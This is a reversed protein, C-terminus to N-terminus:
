FNGLTTKMLQAGVYAGHENLHIDDESYLTKDTYDTLVSGLDVLSDFDTTYNNRAYENFALFEARKAPSSAEINPSIDPWTCLIIYSFGYSRAATAYTVATAFAEEGTTDFDGLIDGQGGNMVLVDTLGPKNRVQPVLRAEQTPTLQTWGYGPYGTIIYPVGTGHMTFFPIHRPYPLINMSQGDFVIRVPAPDRSRSQSM